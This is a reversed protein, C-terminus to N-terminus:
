GRHHQQFVELQAFVGCPEIVGDAGHVGIAGGEGGILAALCRGIGEGGRDDFTEANLLGFGSSCFACRSGGHVLLPSDGVDLAGLPVGRFQGDVPHSIEGGGREGRLTHLRLVGFRHGSVEQPCVQATDVGVTHLAQRPIEAPELLADAVGGGLDLHQPFAGRQQGGVPVSTEALEHGGAEHLAEDGLGLM